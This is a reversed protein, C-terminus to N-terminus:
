AAGAVIAHQPAHADAFVYRPYDRRHRALASLDIDVTAFPETRTTLALVEGNPNIIWGSGGCAGTPEIRNSSLCYAGSRVAAVTGAALWKGLTAAATARPALIAQVGLTAYDAYTELMWLETCINLGFSLGDVLFAPFLADGRHFWNKEWGGPESPLYYKSRLRQLEGSASRVYGENFRRGERTVPRTSVVHPAHLEGLRRLQHDRLAQAIEWTHADFREELWVPPLMAFEPLLVLESDHAITHESLQGWASALAAPEHPLECVTVRM